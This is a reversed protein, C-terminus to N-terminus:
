VVVFITKNVMTGIATRSSNQMHRESTQTIHSKTYLVHNEDDRKKQTWGIQVWTSIYRYELKWTYCNRIRYNSLVRYLMHQMKQKHTHTNIKSTLNGWLMNSNPQCISNHLILGNLIRHMSEKAELIWDM